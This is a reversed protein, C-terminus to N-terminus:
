LSVGTCCCVARVQHESSIWTAGCSLSTYTFERETSGWEPLGTRTSDFVLLSVGMDEDM